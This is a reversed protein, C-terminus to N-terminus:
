VWLRFGAGSVKFGLSYSPAPAYPYLAYPYLAYPYLAYPYLAYTLRTPM